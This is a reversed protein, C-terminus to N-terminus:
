FISFICSFKLNQSFCTSRVYFIENFKQPIPLMIRCYSFSVPFNFFCLCFKLNQRFYTSRVYIDNFKQPVPLM